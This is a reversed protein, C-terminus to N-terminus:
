RFVVCPKHRRRFFLSFKRRLRRAYWNARVEACRKQERTRGHVAVIQAGAAEVMKAYKLTTELDDYVRIKETVPVPLPEREMVLQKVLM